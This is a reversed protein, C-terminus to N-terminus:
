LKNHLIMGWYHRKHCNVFDVLRYKQVYPVAIHGFISSYCIDPCLCSLFEHFVWNVDPM